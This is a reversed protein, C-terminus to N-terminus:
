MKKKILALCSIISKKPFRHLTVVNLKIHVVYIVKCLLLIKIKSIM